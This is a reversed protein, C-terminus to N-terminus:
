VVRRWGKWDKLRDWRSVQVVLPMSPDLPQGESVMSAVHVVEGRTGDRRTFTAAPEDRQSAFVGIRRLIRQRGDSSLDQNKPSFPDISPPIVSVKTEPVEPPVYAARSFVVADAADIYPRLFHWAEETWENRHDSGIHCRWVVHVGAESLTAALGATQPDHLLAVDGRGVRELLPQANAETVHRDHASVAEGLADGDGQAGHIRNHLRETIAFFSVDGNVVLWRVDFGAGLPYGVLVQLMEAVGGGSATSTSTGSPRAAWGPASGRPRGGWPPM